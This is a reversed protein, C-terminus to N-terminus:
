GGYTAGRGIKSEIRRLIDNTTSVKDRLEAGARRAFEIEDNALGKSRLVRVIEADNAAGKGGSSQWMAVADTLRKAREAVSMMAAAEQPSAAQPGVRFLSRARSPSIGYEGGGEMRPTGQPTKGMGELMLPAKLAMRVADATGGLGPILSIVNATRQIQAEVGEILTSVTRMMTQMNAGMGAQIMFSARGIANEMESVERTTQRTIELAYKWRQGYEDGMQVARSLGDQLRRYVIATAAAAAGAAGGFGLLGGLGMGGLAEKMKGSLQKTFEGTKALGSRFQRDDLAITTIIDAM